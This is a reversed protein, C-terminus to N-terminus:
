STLLSKRKSLTNQTYRSRSYGGCGGCQYRTYSGTNTLAPEDAAVLSASGCRPCRVADDPYYAAVNPHGQYYPLMAHYMGECGVVDLRNYEEMVEWARPNGELCQVWLDMGPFENHHEKPADTLLQSLWDQKNSTFKAIQKAMELTDVVRFPSPPPLGAELFRAMIKKVDFARGNQAIVIDLEDLYVWLLHLLHTDDRLDAQGRVDYYSVDGHLPKVAFSLITWDQLIQNLGVNVKWLGWTYAVIPSTEIDLTGIKPGQHM